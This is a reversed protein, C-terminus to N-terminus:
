KNKPSLIYLFYVFIYYITKALTIKLHVGTTQTADEMGIPM